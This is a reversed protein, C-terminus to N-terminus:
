TATGVDAMTACLARCVCVCGVTSFLEYIQDESTYFSLNGVYLTTSNDIARFYEEESGAWKRDVYRPPPTTLSEYLKAM